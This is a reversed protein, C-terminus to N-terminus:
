SKSKEISESDNSNNTEISKPVDQSEAIALQANQMEEIRKNTIITQVEMYVQMIKHNMKVHKGACSDVCQAENNSLDRGNFNNICRIFCSESIANYLQLFDKFNRLSAYDM